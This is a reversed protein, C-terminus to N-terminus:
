WKSPRHIKLVDSLKQKKVKEDTHRTTQDHSEDGSQTHASTIYTAEVRFDRTRGQRLSEFELHIFVILLQHHTFVFRILLVGEREGLVQSCGVSKILGSKTLNQDSYINEWKGWRKLTLIHLYDYDTPYCRPILPNFPVRLKNQSKIFM